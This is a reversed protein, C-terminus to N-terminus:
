QSGDNGTKGKNQRPQDNRGSDALEYADELRSVLAEAESLTKPNAKAAELRFPKRLGLIWQTLATKLDYGPVKSLLMKTRAM